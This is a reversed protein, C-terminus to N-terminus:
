LGGYYHTTIIRKTNNIKWSEVKILFMYFFTYSCHAICVKFVAVTQSFDGGVTILLEYRDTDVTKDGCNANSGQLDNL